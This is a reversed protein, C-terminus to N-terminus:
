VEKKLETHGLPWCMMWEVFRPNLRGDSTEVASDLSDNHRPHDIDRRAETSGKYDRRTPTPFIRVVDNLNQSWGQALKRQARAGDPNDGTRFDRAQPTPWMHANSVQDRLNSPKNRGPRTITSEKHLAEPSKPPLSDLTNPTAFVDQLCGGDIGTTIRALMPLEYVYGDQLIGARPFTQSFPEWGTLFSQQSTKWSCSEQDLWTLSECSRATCDAERKKALALKNEQLALTKALSARMSAVWEERTNPHISCGLTEKTCQCAQFGDTQPENACSQAPMNTGNLLASLTTVSFLTVSCDAGAAQLYTCPKCIM